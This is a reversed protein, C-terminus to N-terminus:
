KAPAPEDPKPTPQPAPATDSPPPEVDDLPLPEFPTVEVDAKNGLYLRRQHQYYASRLFAYPSLAEKIQKRASERDAASSVAGTANLALRFMFPDLFIIPNTVIRLPIDPLSSLTQPGLLPLVLYPGEPLGWKAATVGFNQENLKLGIDTAPDFLGGIGVTSNVVFRGTDSLTQDLNLQLIDNAIVHPYAANTFFNHIGQEIPDPTIDKYVKTVPQIVHTDLALNFDFMARNIPELPDSINQEAYPTANCGGVLAVAITLLPLVCVRQRWRGTTQSM